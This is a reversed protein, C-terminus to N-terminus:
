QNSGFLGLGRAMGEVRDMRGELRHVASSLTDLRAGLRSELQDLRALLRDTDSVPAASPADVAARPQPEPEPEPEPPPSTSPGGTAMSSSFAAPMAPIGMLAAMIAGMNGPFGGAAAEPTLPATVACAEVEVHLLLLRLVDKEGRPLTVFKLQVDACGEVGVEILFCGPEIPEGTVTERYEYAAGAAAHRDRVGVEIRRANTLVAVSDALQVDPRTSTLWITPSRTTPDEEDESPPPRLFELAAPKSSLPDDSAQVLATLADAPNESALTWSCTVRISEHADM